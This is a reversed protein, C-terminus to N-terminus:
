PTLNLQRGEPKPTNGDGIIVFEVRRNAARGAKTGNTQIPREEGFGVAEMRDADVGKKILYNVVAQARKNSLRLNLADGGVSDTHGEIRIKTIEPHAKIVEAVNKLLAFSRKRIRSRGSNFYIRDLIELKESRIVVLQKQKCGQFKAKGREDPCNDLGDAIGDGDRDTLPCGVNDAPGAETPCRDAVDLVGDKDNDPDPCGNQDAFGDLDEPEDVCADLRDPVGDGDADRPCGRIGTGADDPCADDADPIGDGDRDDPCGSPTDAAVDPCNDESDPLGDGDSDPPPCGHPSVGKVRPCRDQSRPVRDGDPDDDPRGLVISFGGLVEFHHTLSNEDPSPNFAFSVTHRGDLRFTLGSVLYFKAGLGWHAAEDIDNGLANEKSKVGLIGGGAVLFPTFRAPMQLVLHGRGAFLLSKDGDRTTTPMLAGEIEFGFFKLPFYGLRLGVEPSAKKLRQHTVNPSDYLEHKNSPLLVGGFGGLEVIHAEPKRDDIPEEEARAISSAGLVLTLLTLRSFTRTQM